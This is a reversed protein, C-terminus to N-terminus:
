IALMRRYSSLKLIMGPVVDMDDVGPNEEMILLDDCKVSITHLTEGEGVRYYEPCLVPQPTPAAVVVSDVYAGVDVDVIANKKLYVEDVFISVIGGVLVAAILFKIIVTVVAHGDVSSM